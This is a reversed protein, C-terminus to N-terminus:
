PWVREVTYGWRAFERVFADRNQGLYVFVSGHTSGIGATGYFNIRHDTFCMVHDWLPAFWTTETAHANVLVVAETTIGDSFQQVLRAVFESQQGGWPPNLWVRGPWEHALGDTESTYYTAAGVTENAQPNSAPDVDIGGMVARVSEIYEGPTYWENSESLHINQWREPEVRHRTEVYAERVSVEGALFDAVTDDDARDLVYEAKTFTDHSVGAMKALVDRTKEGQASDQVLNGLDTRSGQREKAQAEIVPRLKRVLAIRQGTTMDRRGFQNLVMWMKAADRDPLDVEAVGYPIGHAECIALRHHGDLLIGEGKWVALPERCGDAIINAELQGRKDDALPEILDRFEPDVIPRAPATTDDM